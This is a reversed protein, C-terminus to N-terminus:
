AVKQANMFPVYAFDTGKIHKEMWDKIFRLVVVAMTARGGNFEAQFALVQKVMADHEAKHRAFDPYEYLQMLHEEYAFHVVTYQVLRGLIRALVSNGQGASMAAYLERGIAFLRRHQADISCIGVVYETTWEFMNFKDTAPAPVKPWAYGCHRNRWSGAM